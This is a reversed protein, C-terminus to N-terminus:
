VAFQSPVDIKFYDQLYHALGNHDNDDQTVDNAIQKISEIANSMAVGRGAYSIMESDNDEDGFAIINQQAIGYAKAIHEIGADKHVGKSVVELISHPGGWVRIDVNAGYNKNIRGILAQKDNPEYQLTLATPNSTLNLSNLVENTALHTPFFDKMVHSPQNAWLHMKNEATMTHIGLDQRHTLLDLAIQRDINQQYEFQWQQHPIHALAGNFNVMPSKLGIQDYFQGSIRYPRGTVISVIHGDAALKRLTLITESSLQSQDNLTTGDLDIAILHQNM